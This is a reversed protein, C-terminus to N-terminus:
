LFYYNVFRNVQEPKILKKLNKEFYLTISQKEADCASYKSEQLHFFFADSVWFPFELYPTKILHSTLKNEKCAEVFSNPWDQLLHHIMLLSTRRLNVNLREPEVNNGIFERHYTQFLGLKIRLHIFLKEGKPNCVLFSMLRRVGEFYLNSYNFELGAVKGHGHLAQLYNIRNFELEEQTAEIYDTKRLDFHCNSCHTIDSPSYLLENALKKLHKLDISHYCSPCRDHLQVSHHLCCTLFGLRWSKRFYPTKGDETLCCPCYQLGYSKNATKVGIPM